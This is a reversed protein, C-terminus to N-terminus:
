CRSHGPHVLAIGPVRPSDDLRDSPRSRVKDTRVPRLRGPQYQLVRDRLGVEETPCQREEHCRCSFPRRISSVCGHELVPDSEELPAWLAVARLEVPVGDPAERRALDFVRLLKRFAPVGDAKRWEFFMDLVNPGPRGRLSLSRRCVVLRVYVGAVFPGGIDPPAGPELEAWGHFPRADGNLWHTRKDNAAAGSQRSVAVPPPGDGFLSVVHACTRYASCRLISSLCSTM